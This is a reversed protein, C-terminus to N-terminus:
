ARAWSCPWAVRWRAWSWSGVAPAAVRGRHHRARRRPPREVLDPRSARWAPLLGPASRPSRGRRARHLAGWALRPRAADLVAAGRALGRGVLEVFWGGLVIASRAGGGLACCRPRPSCRACSAPAARASRRRAGGARAPARRRPRADPQRPQRLRDAAGRGRRRAARVRRGCARTWPRTASRCRACAGAATRAPISSPWRPAGVVDVESQVQPLTVGARLLGFAAVFRQARTPAREPDSSPRYAVWFDDREPFRIGPPM